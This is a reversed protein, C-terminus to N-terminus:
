PVGSQQDTQEELQQLSWNRALGQPSPPHAGYNRVQEATNPAGIWGLAIVAAFRVLEDEPDSISMDLMRGALQTALDMDQSGELIKGLAWIASTRAIDGMKHGNKPVYKKLMAVAPAYRNIGLAEFLFAQRLLELHAVDDSRNLRETMRQCHALIDDLVAQDEALEQLAWAALLSIEGRSHELLQVLQPCRKREGLSVTLL